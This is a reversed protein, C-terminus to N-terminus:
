LRFDVPVLGIARIPHGDRTAPQFRWSKLVQRVAAQDLDRHGSSRSVTVEIPQGAEDVVVQLLVTGSRGERVAKVPYRPAPASAYALRAGTMPSLDPPGDDIANDAIVDTTEGVADVPPVHIDPAQSDPLPDPQRVPPSPQRVPATPTREVPVPVPPPPPQDLKIPEVLITEQKAEVPEISQPRLLLMVAVLHLVIMAAMALIRNVDPGNGDALAARWREFRSGEGHRPDAHQQEVHQQGFPFSPTM